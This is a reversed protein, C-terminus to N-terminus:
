AYFYDESAPEQNKKMLVVSHRLWALGKSRIAPTFHEKRGPLAEGKKRIRLDGHSLVQEGIRHEQEQMESEGEGKSM